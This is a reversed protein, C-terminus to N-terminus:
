GGIVVCQFSLGSQTRLTLDRELGKPNTIRREPDYVLAVIASCDPHKPYRGSDIILEEYVKAANLGPRTMKTEIVVGADPLVFDVRSNRGGKSPVYDEPRVDDFLTRLLAEVVVQLDHEDRIESELSWSPRRASLTRLLSPLRRFVAALDSAVLEADSEVPAAELLISRQKELRERVKEFPYQWQSFMEPNEAAAAAFASVKRPDLLYSQIGPSFMTGDRQEDFKSQAGGSLLRRAAAHWTRFAGHVESILEDTVPADGQLAGMARELEQSQAVLLEFESTRM